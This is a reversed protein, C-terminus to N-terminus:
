TLCPVQGLGDGAVTHVPERADPSHDWGPSHRGSRKFGLSLWVGVPISSGTMCKHVGSNLRLLAKTIRYSSMYLVANRFLFHFLRKASRPSYAETMLCRRAVM